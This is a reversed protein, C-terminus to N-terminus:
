EKFNKLSYLYLIFFKLIEIFEKWNKLTFGFVLTGNLIDSTSGFIKIIKLLLVRQQFCNEQGRGKIVSADTQKLRLAAREVAPFQPFNEATL